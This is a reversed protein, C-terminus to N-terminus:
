PRRGQWEHLWTLADLATVAASPASLDQLTQRMAADAFGTLGRSTGKNIGADNFWRVVPFNTSVSAAPCKSPKGNQVAISGHRRASQPALGM